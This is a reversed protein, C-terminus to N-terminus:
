WGTISLNDIEGFHSDRTVLVASYQLALAAIWLDNEPIPHGKQRLQHKIIGYQRATAADCSLIVNSAALEDIRKLNAKVRSSKHAGYCLEGVVICPIFVEAARQLNELVAEDNAFLAIVINTDLLYRGSM